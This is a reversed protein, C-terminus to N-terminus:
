QPPRPRFTRMVLLHGNSIAVQSVVRLTESRSLMGYTAQSDKSTHSGRRNLGSWVVFFVGMHTNKITSAQTPISGAYLSKCDEAYGSQWWAQVPLPMNRLFFNYNLM